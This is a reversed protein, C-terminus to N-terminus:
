PTREPATRSYRSPQGPISRRVLVCALTAAAIAVAFVTFFGVAGGADVARAGVWSSAVAGLRGIGLVAGIGTARL